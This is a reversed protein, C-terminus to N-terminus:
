PLRQIMSIYLQTWQSQVWKIDHSNLQTSHSESTEEGLVQIIKQAWQEVSPGAFITEKPLSTLHQNAIVQAGCAIAEIAVLPQGEFSSPLLVIQATQYHYLLESEEIWGLGTLWTEFSENRGTMFLRINPNEKRALTIAEVAFSHGKVPDDRGVILIKGEETKRPFLLQYRPHVPNNIATTKGILSDLKAAWQDSLTVVKSRYKGLTKKMSDGNTKGGIRKKSLWTDMQGSHIHVVSPIQLSYSMKCFIRKRRWSWDAATHLHVVDPREEASRCRRILEKRARRYAKWKAWPSGVTHSSLLEAEWGEPPYEALTRMVNAMGGPTDCPGIHLVKPM